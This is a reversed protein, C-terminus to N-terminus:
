DEDEIYFQPRVTRSVITAPYTRSKARSRQSVKWWDAGCRKCIVPSTKTVFPYNATWEHGIMNCGYVKWGVYILLCALPIIAILLITM